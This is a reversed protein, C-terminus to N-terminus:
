NGGIEISGGPKYNNSGGSSNDEIDGGYGIHVKDSGAYPDKIGTAIESPDTIVHVNPPLNATGRDEENSGSNGSSNNGTDGGYGISVEGYGDYPDKIGTSIESPDTIVEGFSDWGDLSGRDEENVVVNPDKAAAPKNGQATQPAQTDEHNSTDQQQVGSLRWARYQAEYDSPLTKDMNEVVIKIMELESRITEEDDSNFISKSIDYEEQFVELLEDHTIEPLQKDSLQEPTTSKEPEPASVDAPTSAAAPDPQGAQARHCATLSLLLALSLSYILAKKM